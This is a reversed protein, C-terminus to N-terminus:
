RKCSNDGAATGHPAVECRVSSSDPRPTVEVVLMVRVISTTPPPCKLQFDVSIRVLAFLLFVTM